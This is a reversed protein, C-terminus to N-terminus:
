LATALRGMSTGCATAALRPCADFASASRHRHPTPDGSASTSRTGACCRRPHPKLLPGLPSACYGPVHGFGLNVEYYGPKRLSRAIPLDAEDEAVFLRVLSIPQHGKGDSVNRRGPHDITERKQHQIVVTSKKRTDQDGVCRRSSHKHLIAS